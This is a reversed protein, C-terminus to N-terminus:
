KARKKAKTTNKKAKAAPTKANRKAVPMCPKPPAKKTTPVAVPMSDGPAAPESEYRTSRGVQQSNGGLQQIISFLYAGMRGALYGAERGALCGAERWTLDVVAM